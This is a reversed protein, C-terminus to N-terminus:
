IGSYKVGTNLTYGDYNRLTMQTWFCFSPGVIGFTLHYRYVSLLWILWISLFGIDIDRAPISIIVFLSAIAFRDRTLM